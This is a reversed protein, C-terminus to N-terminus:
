SKAQHENNATRRDDIVQGDQLQIVRHAHEAIQPEHTIIIVTRGLQHLEKLILMIEESSRTDLAGTPEDAMIISPDNVLARAIAVRQQEGGSLENPRHTIRGELGVSILAHRALREPEGAVKQGYALPLMVNELATTRPLLNFQQFVFGIKQNRIEALSDDNLEDVETGELRYSGATPRELCGLINMLTSKGSGSKGIIAVFEGADIKLSVGRLAKVPATEVGYTM